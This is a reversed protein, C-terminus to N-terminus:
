TNIVIGLEAFVADVLSEFNEIPVSCNGTRASFLWSIREAIEHRATRVTESDIGQRRQLLGFTAALLREREPDQIYKRSTIALDFSTFLRIVIEKRIEECLKETKDNYEALGDRVLTDLVVDKIM